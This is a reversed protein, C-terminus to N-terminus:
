GAGQAATGSLGLGKPNELKALVIIAACLLTAEDMMRPAAENPLLGPPGHAKLTERIMQLAARGDGELSIPSSGLNVPLNRMFSM